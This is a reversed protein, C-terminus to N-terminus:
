GASTVPGDPKAWDNAQSLVCFHRAPTLATRATNM